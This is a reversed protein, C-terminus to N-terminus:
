LAQSDGPRIRYNDEISDRSSVEMIVTNDELCTVQHPTFPEIRIKEGKEIIVFTTSSDSLDMLEVKISGSLIKWTEDKIKHFHMSSKHGKKEFHLEKMCYLDNSEIIEEHGWGKKIIM